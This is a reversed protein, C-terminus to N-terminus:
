ESSQFLLHFKISFLTFITKYIYYYLFCVLYLKTILWVTNLYEISSSNRNSLSCFGWVNSSCCAQCFHLFSPKSFAVNSIHGLFSFSIFRNTKCRLNLERLIISQTSYATVIVSYWSRSWIFVTSTISGAHDDLPLNMEESSLPIKYM